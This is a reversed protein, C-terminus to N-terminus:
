ELVDITLKVTNNAFQLNHMLVDFHLTTPFPNAGIYSNYVKSAFLIYVGTSKKVWFFFFVKGAKIRSTKM